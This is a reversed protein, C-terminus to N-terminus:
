TLVGYLARQLACPQGRGQTASAANRTAQAKPLAKGRVNARHSHSHPACCPRVARVPSYNM